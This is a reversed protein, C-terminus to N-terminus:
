ILKRKIAWEDNDLLGKGILELDSMCKEHSVVSNNGRFENSYLFLANKMREFESFDINLINTESNPLYCEVCNLILILFLCKSFGSYINAM